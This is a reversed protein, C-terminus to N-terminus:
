GLEGYRKGIGALVAALHAQIKAIRYKDGRARAEGRTHKGTPPQGSAIADFMEMAASVSVESEDERPVGLLEEARPADLEGEDATYVCGALCAGRLDITVLPTVGDADTIIELTEEDANLHITVPMQIAM